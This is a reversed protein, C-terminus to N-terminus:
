FKMESTSALENNNKDLAILRVFLNNGFQVFDENPIYFCNTTKELKYEKLHFYQYGLRNRVLRSVKVKYSEAGKVPQYFLSKSRNGVSEVYLQFMNENTGKVFKQSVLEVIENYKNPLTVFNPDAFKIQKEIGNPFSVDCLCDEENTSLYTKIVKAKGEGLVYFEDEFGVEHYGPQFLSEKIKGENVWFTYELFRKLDLELNLAKLGLENKKLNLDDINSIVRVFTELLVKSVKVANYTKNIYSTCIYLSQSILYDFFKESELDARVYANDQKVFFENAQYVNNGDFFKFEKLNLKPMYGYGFSEDFVAKGFSEFLNKKEWLVM